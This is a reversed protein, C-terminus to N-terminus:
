FLYMGGGSKYLVLTKPPQSQDKPTRTVNMTEFQNNRELDPSELSWADTPTEFYFSTSSTGKNFRFGGQIYQKIPYPTHHNEFLTGSFKGSAEDHSSIRLNITASTGGGNIYDGNIPHSM